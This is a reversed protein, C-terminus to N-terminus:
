MPQLHHPQMKQVHFSMARQSEQEPHKLVQKGKQNSLGWHAPDTDRSVPSLPLYQGMSM